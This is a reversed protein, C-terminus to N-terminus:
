SKFNAKRLLSCIVCNEIYNQKICLKRLTMKETCIRCQTVERLVQVDVISDGQILEM